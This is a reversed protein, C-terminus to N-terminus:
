VAIVRALRRTTSTTSPLESSSAIAWRGSGRRQDLSRSSSRAQSSGGRVRIWCRLVRHGVAVEVQAQEGGAGHGSLGALEREVVEVPARLELDLELPHLVDHADGVPRDLVQHARAQAAGIRLVIQEALFAAAGLAPGARGQPHDIRDVAGGIEQAAHRVPRDREGADDVVPDLDPHSVVRHVVLQEPRPAAAARVAVM